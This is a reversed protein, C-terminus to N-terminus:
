PVAFGRSWEDLSPRGSLLPLGPLFPLRRQHGGGRWPSSEKVRINGVSSLVGGLGGVEGGLDREGHDHALVVVM